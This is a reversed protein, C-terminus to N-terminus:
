ALLAACLPAALRGCVSSKMVSGVISSVSFTGAPVDSRLLAYRCISVPGLRPAPLDRTLPRSSYIRPPPSDPLPPADLPVSSIHVAWAVDVPPAIPPTSQTLVALPGLMSTVTALLPDATSQCSCVRSPAKRPASKGQHMPCVAGVEHPCECSAKASTGPAASCLTTPVSVLLSLHVALWAAAVRGARTRLAQM